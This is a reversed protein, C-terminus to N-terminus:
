QSARRAQDESKHRAGMCRKGARDRKLMHPSGSSCRVPRHLIDSFRNLHPCDTCAMGASQAITAAIADPCVNVVRAVKLTVFPEFGHGDVGHRNDEGGLDMGWGLGSRLGAIVAAPWITPVKCYMAGSCNCPLVASARLSRNAKPQTSYGFVLAWIGLAEQVCDGLKRPLRV